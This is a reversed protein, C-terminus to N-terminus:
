KKEGPTKMMLDEVVKRREEVSSNNQFWVHDKDRTSNWTIYHKSAEVRGTKDIKFLESEGRAAILVGMQDWSPRFEWGPHASRYLAYAVRVPNDVATNAMMVPGTFVDDGLANPVFWYEVPWNNIVYESKEPAIRFNYSSGKPLQGGATILRKVKKRILDMGKLASITDPMSKMLHYINTLPGVTLIIVSTDKASALLQRYLTVSNPAYKADKLDNPFRKALAENYVALDGAGSSDSSNRLTGIPIDPRKYFTNIADLAPAGYQVPMSVMMGLIELEGYDALAHLVAMAGVDDCDEAIDTDFIIKAAAQEQDDGRDDEADHLAGDNPTPLVKAPVKKEPVVPEQNDICANFVILYSLCVFMGRMDEELNILYHNIVLSSYFPIM